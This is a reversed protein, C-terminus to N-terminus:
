LYRPPTCKGGVQASIEEGKEGTESEAGAQESIKEGKQICLRKVGRGSTNFNLEVNTLVINNSGLDFCWM